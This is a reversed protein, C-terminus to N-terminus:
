GNLQWEVWRDWLPLYAMELDAKEPWRPKGHPNSDAPQTLRYWGPSVRVLYAFSYPLSGSVNTATAVYRVVTPRHSDPFLRQVEDILETPKFHVRGSEHLSAAAVWVM